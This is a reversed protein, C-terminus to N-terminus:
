NNYFSIFHKADKRTERYIKLNFSLWLLLNLLKAPWDECYTRDDIQIALKEMRQEAAM